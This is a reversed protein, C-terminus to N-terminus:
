GPKYDPHRPDSRPILVCAVHEPRFEVRDGPRLADLSAPDSDLTGAYRGGAAERITVWMREVQVVERGRYEARRGQYITRFAFHVQVRAGAELGAREGRSPIHFRDPHEAHREEASVLEWGDEGLTAM